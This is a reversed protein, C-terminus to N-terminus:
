QKRAPVLSGDSRASTRWEHWQSRRLTFVFIM